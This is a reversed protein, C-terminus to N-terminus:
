GREDADCTNGIGQILLSSSNSFSKDNDFTQSQQRKKRELRLKVPSVQAHPELDNNLNDTMFENCKQLIHEHQAETM